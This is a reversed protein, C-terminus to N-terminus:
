KHARAWSWRLVVIGVLFLGIAAIFVITLLSYSKHEAVNISPEPIGFASLTFEHPSPKPEGYFKFSVKRVCDFRQTGERIKTSQSEFYSPCPCEAKPEGLVYKGTETGKEGTSDWELRYERITWLNASDLVVTARLIWSLRDRPEVGQKKKSLELIGSGQKDSVRRTFSVSHWASDEATLKILDWGSGWGLTILPWLNEGFEDLESLQPTKSVRSDLWAVLWRGPEKEQLVYSYKRCRCLVIGEPPRYKMNPKEPYRLRSIMIRGEDSQKFSISTQSYLKGNVYFMDSVELQMQESKSKYQEWAERIERPVASGEGGYCFQLSPDFALLIMLAGLLATTSLDSCPHAFEPACTLLSNNHMAM